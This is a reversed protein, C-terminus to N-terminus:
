GKISRALVDLVYDIDAKTIGQHTVMRLKNDGFQSAKVGYQNLKAIMDAATMPLRSVDFLVINTQITTLDIILGLN